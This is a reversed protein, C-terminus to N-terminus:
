IIIWNGQITWGSALFDTYVVIKSNDYSQVTARAVIGSISGSTAVNVIHGEVPTLHVEASGGSNTAATNLTFYFDSDQFGFSADPNNIYVEISNNDVPTYGSICYAEGAFTPYALFAYSTNAIGLNHTIKYIGTGVHTLTWGSPFFSGAANSVVQGSYSTGSGSSSGVYFGSSCQIIPEFLGGTQVSTTTLPQFYQNKGLSAFGQVTARIDIGSGGTHYAGGIFWVQTPSFNQGFKFTYYTQAQSMTIDGLSRATPIINQQPIPPSGVANHTHQQTNTLNFRNQSLVQNVIARVKEENM